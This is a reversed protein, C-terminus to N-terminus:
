SNLRTLTDFQILLEHTVFYKKIRQEISYLIYGFFLRLIRSM